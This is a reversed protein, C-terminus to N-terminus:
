ILKKSKCYELWLNKYLMNNCSSMISPIIDNFELKKAEYAVIICMLNNYASYASKLRSLRVLEGATLNIYHENTANNPETEVVSSDYAHIKSGIAHKFPEIYKEDGGYHSIFINKREKEM